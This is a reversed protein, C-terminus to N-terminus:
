TPQNYNYLDKRQQETIASATVIPQYVNGNLIGTTNDIKSGVTLNVGSTFSTNTTSTGVSTNNVFLEITSGNRVAAFHRWTGDTYDGATGSTIANSGNWLLKLAQTDNFDFSINLTTDDTGIVLAYMNSVSSDARFWFAVTFDGSLANITADLNDIGDVFRCYGNIYQPQNIGTAQILDNGNSSEDVWSYIYDGDNPVGQVKGVSTSVTGNETLDNTSHLDFRTGSTENMDWWATLNVKIAANTNEYDIGNGSNYLYSADSDTLKRTHYSVNDLRGNLNSVTNGLRFDQTGVTMTGTLTAGDEFSGGNISVGVKTKFFRVSVFTWVTVSVSATSVVGGIGVGSEFIDIEINNSSNKRVLYAINGAQYRGLVKYDGSNNFYVWFSITFDDNSKFVAEPTSLYNAVNNDFSAANKKNFSTSFNGLWNELNPLSLPTFALIYKKAIQLAKGLFM